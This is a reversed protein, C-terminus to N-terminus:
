AQTYALQAVILDGVPVSGPNNTFSGWNLESRTGDVNITVDVVVSVSAGEINAGVAGSSGPTALYNPGLSYLQVVSCGTVPSPAPASWASARQITQISWQIWFRGHCNRPFRLVNGTITCGCTSGAQLVPNSLTGQAVATNAFTLRYHDSLATIGLSDVLKPKFLEIEYTAWLEGIVGGTFAQGQTAIQFRGLDYLRLDGVTVEGTRVYLHELVSLNQKCEIPHIFTLSPKASNAFEYNEMTRKDPFNPFLANYQTAMIVTGLSTSTTTTSLVNDASMTKFEFILGRFRYEEFSTAVGSLWPFLNSLGPNIFYSINNFAQSATVDTIYERHRIIVGGASSGNTIIPVDQGMISNGEIKYDGFGTIHKFLMQAGHGLFAGLKAGVKAGISKQPKPKVERVITKVVPYTQTVKPKPKLTKKPPM